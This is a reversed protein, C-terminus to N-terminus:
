LFVNNRIKGKRAVFQGQLLFYRTYTGNGDKDVTAVEKKSEGDPQYITYSHSGQNDFIGSQRITEGNSAYLTYSRRGDSNTTGTEKKSVGDEQYITYSQVGKTNITGTKAIKLGDSQYKIYSEHGDSYFIGTKQITVGDSQYTTYSESGDFNTGGIKAIKLGDLQYKIYSERGDRYIIGTQQITVGDSQYGIYSKSGDINVTGSEEIVENHLQYIKYSQVGESNRVTEQRRGDSLIKIQIPQNHDTRVVSGDLNYHTTITLGYDHMRSSAELQSEKNYIDLGIRDGNFNNIKHIKTGDPLITDTSELKGQADYNKIIQTKDPMITKEQQKIQHSDLIITTVSGDSNYITNHQSGDHNLLHESLKKGAMDYVTLPEETITAQLPAEDLVIEPFNEKAKLDEFELGQQKFKLLHQQQKQTMPKGLSNVQRQLPITEQLAKESPMRKTSRVVEVEVIQNNEVIFPVAFAEVPPQNSVHWASSFSAQAVPLNEHSTEIPPLRHMAQVSFTTVLCLILVRNKILKKM